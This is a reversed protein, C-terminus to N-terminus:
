RPNCKDNKRGNVFLEYNNEPFGKGLIRKQGKGNVVLRIESNSLSSEISDFILLSIFILFSLFSIKNKFIFFNKKIEYKM